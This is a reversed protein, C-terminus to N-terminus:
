CEKHDRAVPNQLYSDIEDGLEQLRETLNARHDQDDETDDLYESLVPSSSVQPKSKKSKKQKRPPTPLATIPHIPRFPKPLHDIAGILHYAIRTVYEGYAIYKKHLKQKVAEPIETLFFRSWNKKANIKKTM